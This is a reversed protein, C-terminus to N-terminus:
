NSPFLSSALYISGSDDAMCCREITRPYGRVPDFTVTPPTSAALIQDFLQDVTYWGTTSIVAGSGIVTVRTVQWQSVEVSVPGAPAFAAIAAVYTYSLFKQAAWLKQADQVTKPATISDSCGALGLMLAASVVPRVLNLM